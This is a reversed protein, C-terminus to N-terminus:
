GSPIKREPGSGKRKRWGKTSRRSVAVGAWVPGSASGGGAGQDAGMRVWVCLWLPTEERKARLGWSYPWEASKSALLTVRPLPSKHSGQGLPPPPSRGTWGAAMRLSNRRVPSPEQVGWGRREWEEWGHTWISGPHLISSGSIWRPGPRRRREHSPAGPAAGRGPAGTGPATRSPNACCPAFGWGLLGGRIV